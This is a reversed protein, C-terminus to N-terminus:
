PRHGLLLGGAGTVAIGGLVAALWGLGTSRDDSPQGGTEPLAEPERLEGLATPTPSPALVVPPILAPAPTPTAASSTAPTATPTPTPARQPTSQRTTFLVALGDTLAPTNHSYQLGAAGDLSIGTTATGGNNEEAIDDNGTSFFTDQYQIKIDNSGEFLITEFTAGEGAKCDVCDNHCVDEFQVVFARNPAAGLTDYYIDGCKSPDLDDFWPAILPNGGWGDAICDADDHPMPFQNWNYQCNCANGTDFSLLGNTGIDLETYDTDFFNFTFPLSVTDACEDCSSGPILTGTNTIDMWEFTTVPDPANSDVWVYGSASPSSTDAGVTALGVFTLTPLLTAILILSGAIPRTLLNRM